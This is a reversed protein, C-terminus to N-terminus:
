TGCCLDYFTDDPKPAIIDIIQPAFAQKGGQYATPPVLKM